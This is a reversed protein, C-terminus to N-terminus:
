QQGRLQIRNLGNRHLVGAKRLMSLAGPKMHDAVKFQANRNITELTTLSLILYMRSWVLTKLMCMEYGELGEPKHKTTNKSTGKLIM